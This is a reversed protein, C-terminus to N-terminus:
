FTALPEFRSLPAFCFMSIGSLVTLNIALADTSWIFVLMFLSLALLVYALIRRTNPM